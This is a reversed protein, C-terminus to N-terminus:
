NVSLTFYISLVRDQDGAKVRLPSTMMGNNM